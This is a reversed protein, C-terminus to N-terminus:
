PRPKRLPPVSWRLADLADGYSVSMAEGDELAAYEGETLYFVVVKLDRQPKSRKFMRSGIRLVLPQAGMPFESTSTLEIEWHAAEHEIRTVVADEAQAHATAFLLGVALTAALTRM